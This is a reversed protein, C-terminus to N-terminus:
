QGSYPAQCPWQDSSQYLPKAPHMAHIQNQKPRVLVLGCSRIQCNTTKGM